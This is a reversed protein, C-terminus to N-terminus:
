QLYANIPAYALIVKVVYSVKVENLSYDSSVEGAAVRGDAKAILKHVRDEKLMRSFDVDAAKHLVKPTNWFTRSEAEKRRLAYISQQKCVSLEFSTIRCYWM